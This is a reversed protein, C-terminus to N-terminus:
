RMLRGYDISLEDYQFSKQRSFIFKIRCWESDYIIKLNSPKAFNSFTQRFGLRNIDFNEEIMQILAYGLEDGSKINRDDKLLNM